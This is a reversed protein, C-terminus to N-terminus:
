SKPEEYVVVWTLGYPCLVEVRGIDPRKIAVNVEMDKSSDGDNWTWFALESTKCPPVADRGYFAKVNWKGRM